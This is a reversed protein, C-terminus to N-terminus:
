CCSSSAHENGTPMKEDFITVQTVMTFTPQKYEEGRPYVWVLAAVLGFMAWSQNPQAGGASSRRSHCLQSPGCTMMVRTTHGCSFESSMKKQFREIRGSAQLLSASREEEEDGIAHDMVADDEGVDGPPAAQHRRRRVKEKASLLPWDVQEHSAKPM